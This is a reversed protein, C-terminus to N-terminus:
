RGISLEIQHLELQSFFGDVDQRAENPSLDFEKCLHMVIQQKGLGNQLLEWLYAGGENLCLPKHYNPGTQKMDLLWYKGAAYRLQYDERKM